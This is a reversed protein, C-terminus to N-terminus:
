KAEPQRGFKGSPHGPAYLVFHGHRSVKSKVVPLGGQTHSLTYGLRRVGGIVSCNPQHRRYTHTYPGSYCLHQLGPSETAIKNSEERRKSDTRFNSM